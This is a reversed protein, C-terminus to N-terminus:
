LYQNNTGSRDQKKRVLVARTSLVSPTVFSKIKIMERHVPKFAWNCHQPVPNVVLKKSFGSRTRFVNEHGSIPFIGYWNWFIGHRIEKFFWFVENKFKWPNCQGEQILIWVVRWCSNSPKRFIKLQSVTNSVMSDEDQQPTPDDYARSIPAAFATGAVVSPSKM